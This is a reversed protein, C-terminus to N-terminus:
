VHIPLMRMHVKMESMNLYREWIRNSKVCTYSHGDFRAERFKKNTQKSIFSSKWEVPVTFGELHPQGKAKFIAAHWSRRSIVVKRRSVKEHKGLGRVSGRTTLLARTNIILSSSSALCTALNQTNVIEECACHGFTDHLKFNLWSIKWIYFYFRKRRKFFLELTSKSIVLSLM